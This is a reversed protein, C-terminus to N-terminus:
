LINELNHRGLIWGVSLFANVDNNLVTAWKKLNFNTMWKRKTEFPEWKPFIWNDDKFSKLKHFVKERDNLWENEWIIIIKYGLNRLAFNRRRDSNWKEQASMGILKIWDDPKFKRPNAHWFDGYYEIIVKNKLNVIDVKFGDVIQELLFGDNELLEFIERQGKSIYGIKSNKFIKNYHTRKFNEDSNLKEHFDRAIKRRHECYREYEDVNLAKVKESTFRGSNPKLKGSEDYLGILVARRAMFPRACSGCYEKNMLSIRRNFIDANEIFVKGCKDCQCEIKAKARKRSNVKSGDEKFSLVHEGKLIM